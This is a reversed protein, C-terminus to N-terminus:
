TTMMRGALMLNVVMLLLLFWGAGQWIWWSERRKWSRYTQVFAVIGGILLVAPSALAIMPTGHRGCLAEDVDLSISYQGMWMVSTILTIGAAVVVVGSFWVAKGFAKKDRSKRTRDSYMPANM